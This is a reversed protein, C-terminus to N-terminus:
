CMRSHPPPFVICHDIPDFLVQSTFWSSSVLAAIHRQLFPIYCTCQDIEEGCSNCRISEEWRGKKERKKKVPEM